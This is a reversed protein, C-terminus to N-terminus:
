ISAFWSKSDLFQPGQGSFVLVVPPRKSPVNVPRPFSISNVEEKKVVAFTRWTTQRTQRGSLAALDFADCLNNQILKAYTECLATTSRPTLGGVALLIIDTALRSKRAPLSPSEIVVHANAGGIGSSTMAVLTKSARSPLEVAQSPVILKYQDWRILPNPTKLNVSPPIMQYQFM